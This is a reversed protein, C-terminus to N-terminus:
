VVVIKVLIVVEFLVEVVVPAVSGDECGKMRHGPCELGTACVNKDAFLFACGTM